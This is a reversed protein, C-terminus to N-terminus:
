YLVSLISTNPRMMPGYEEANDISSSRRTNNYGMLSKTDHIELVLSQKLCLYLWFYHKSGFLRWHGAADIYEFQKVAGQHDDDSKNHTTGLEDCANNILLQEKQLTKFTHTKYRM